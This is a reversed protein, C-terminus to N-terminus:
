INLRYLRTKAMALYKFYEKLYYMERGMRGAEVKRWKHM